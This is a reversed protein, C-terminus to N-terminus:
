YKPVGPDVREAWALIGGKMNRVRQFGAGRLFGCARASRVGSKCHVVTDAQPNLEGIRRPLEGLPILRAGPISAIRHEHPERVDILVFDDGGDLKRKVETVDIEASSM